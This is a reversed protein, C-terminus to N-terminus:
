SHSFSKYGIVACTQSTAWHQYSWEITTLDCPPIPLPMHLCQSFSVSTITSTCMIMVLVRPPAKYLHMCHFMVNLCCHLSSLTSSSLEFLSYRILALWLHHNIQVFARKSIHPQTRGRDITIFFITNINDKVNGVYLRKLLTQYILWWHHNACTPVTLSLTM